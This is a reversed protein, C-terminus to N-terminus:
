MWGTGWSHFAIFVLPFEWTEPSVGVEARGLASGNFDIYRSRNDFDWVVVPRLFDASRLFVASTNEGLNRCLNTSYITLRHLFEFSLSQPTFQVWKQPRDFSGFVPDKWCPIRSASRSLKLRGDTPIKTWSYSHGIVIWNSSSCGGIVTTSQPRFESLIM